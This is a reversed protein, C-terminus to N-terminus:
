DVIILKLFHDLQIRGLTMKLDLPPMSATFGKTNSSEGNTMSPLLSINTASYYYYDYHYYDDDDDSAIRLM